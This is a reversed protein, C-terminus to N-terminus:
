LRRYEEVYRNGRGQVAAIRRNREREWDDPPDANNWAAYLQADQRSLAFGYTDRMYLMTRAIDGRVAPPPEVRRIDADFRVACDGLREAGPGVMGWNFDSRKANVAGVAPVLNHLDNHAAEFLPDTKECCARGSLAKGNAGLCAPFAAPTRWCPRSQGFQAAPFLHEAEIREARSNGALADLGCGGLAPRREASYACGCYFSLRHGAYIRDYLLRKATGFSAPTRPLDSPLAEAPPSPLPAPLPLPRAIPAPGPALDPARRGLAALGALADHAVDGLLTRIDQAIAVARQAHASWGATLSDPLYSLASILALGFALDRGAALTRRAVSQLRPVASPVASRSPSPPRRPM